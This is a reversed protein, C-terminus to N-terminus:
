LRADSVAFEDFLRLALGVSQLVGVRGFGEFPAQAKEMVIEIHALPVGFGFRTEFGIGTEVLIGIHSDVALQLSFSFFACFGGIEGLIIQTMEGLIHGEFGDIRLCTMVEETIIDVAETKRKGDRGRWGERYRGRQWLTERRKGIKRQRTRPADTGRQTRRKKGPM